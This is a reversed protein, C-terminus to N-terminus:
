RGTPDVGRSLLDWPDDSDPRTREYRSRKTSPPPPLLAAMLGSLGLGLLSVLATGIVFGSWTLASAGSELALDLGIVEDRLRSLSEDPSLLAGTLLWLAAAALGIQLFGLLRVTLGRSLITAAWAAAAAMALTASAPSFEWWTASLTSGSSSSWSLWSAGFFLGGILLSVGGLWLPIRGM